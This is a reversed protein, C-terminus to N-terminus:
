SCNSLASSEETRSSSEATSSSKVASVPGHCFSCATVSGESRARAAPAASSESDPFNGVGASSRRMPPALQSCIASSIVSCILPIESSRAPGLSDSRGETMTRESMSSRTRRTSATSEALKKEAPFCRFTSTFASPWSAILVSPFATCAEVAAAKAVRVRISSTRLRVVSSNRTLMGSSQFGMATSAVSDKEERRSSNRVTACRLSLAPNPSKRVSSAM